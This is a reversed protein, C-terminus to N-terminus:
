AWAAEASSKAVCLSRSFHAAPMLYKLMYNVPPAFEVQRAVATFGADFADQFLLPLQEHSSSLQGASGHQGANSCAMDLAHSVM